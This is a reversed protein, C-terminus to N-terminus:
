GEECKGNENTSALDTANIHGISQSRDLNNFNKLFRASHIILMM